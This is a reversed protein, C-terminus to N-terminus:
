LHLLIFMIAYQGPEYVGVEGLCLREATPDLSQVVVYQYMNEQLEDPCEFDVQLGAKVVFNEKSGCLADEYITPDLADGENPLQAATLFGVQFNDLADVVITCISDRYCHV